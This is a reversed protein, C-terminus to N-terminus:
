KKWESNVHKGFNDWEKHVHKGLKDSEIQVHKGMKDSEIQMHKGASGVHNCLQVFVNDHSKVVVEDEFNSKTNDDNPCWYFVSSLACLQICSQDIM